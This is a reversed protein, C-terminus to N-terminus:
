CEEGTDKKICIFLYEPDIWTRNLARCIEPATMNYFVTHYANHQKAGVRSINEPTSLGGHSRPCRHHRSNRESM